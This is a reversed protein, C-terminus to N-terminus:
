RGRPTLWVTDTPPRAGVAAFRAVHLASDAAFVTLPAGPRDDLLQASVWVSTTDESGAAPPQWRILELSVAGTDPRPALALDAGTRERAPVARVIWRYPAPWPQPPAQVMVVLRACGYNGFERTPPCADGGTALETPARECAAAWLGACLLVFGALLRTM